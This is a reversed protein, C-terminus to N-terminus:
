VPRSGRLVLFFITAYGYSSALFGSKTKREANAKDSNPIEGDPADIRVTVTYIRANDENNHIDFVIDGDKDFRAKMGNEGDEIREGTKFQYIPSRPQDTTVSLIQGRNGGIVFRAKYDIKVQIVFDNGSVPPNLREAPYLEKRKATGVEALEGNSFRYSSTITSNPCCLGGDEENREVYLFGSRVYASVLGSAARDGGSFRGVLRPRSRATSFIHGESFKGTGGPHCVTIVIAEDLADGDLDGFEVSHVWVRHFDFVGDDGRHEYKGNRVRIPAPEEDACFVSYEFNKFDFSRINKQGYVAIPLVISLYGLLLLIRMSVLLVALRFDNRL